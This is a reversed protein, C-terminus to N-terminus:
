VTPVVVMFQLIAAAPFLFKTIEEYRRSSFLKFNKRLSKMKEECARNIIKIIKLDDRQEISLM